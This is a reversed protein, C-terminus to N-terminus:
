QEARVVGTVTAAVVQYGLGVRIGVADEPNGTVIVPIQERRVETRRDSSMRLSASAALVLRAGEPAELSRGKATGFTYNGPETGIGAWCAGSQRSRSPTETTTITVTAM